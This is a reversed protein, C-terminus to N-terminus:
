IRWGSRRMRNSFNRLTPFTTTTTPSSNRALRIDRLASFKIRYEGNVYMFKPTINYGQESTHNVYRSSNSYLSDEVWIGEHELITFLYSSTSEKNFVDGRRAERRVGKDHTILESTYKIVFKDQAVDEATFLGYGYGELQSKGLIVVM